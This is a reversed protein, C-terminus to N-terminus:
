CQFRNALTSKQWKSMADSMKKGFQVLVVLIPM